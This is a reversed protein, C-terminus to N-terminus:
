PAPKPKIKLAVDTEAQLLAGGSTVRLKVKPVAAEATTAPAKIVIRYEDQDAAVTAPTQQYGDPLGALTVEVPRTFGATRQLKGTVAHDTEAVVTLTEDNFKPSVATKIEVRAPQSYATAVVRESYAHPVAEAVFVFDISKEVVELPVMIPMAVTSQDAAVLGFGPSVAVVPITGQAPQNPVKQRVPETSKLSFRVPQKAVEMGERRAIQVPVTTTVGKFLTKPPETMEASLGAVATTGWALQDSFSTLVGDTDREVARVLPPEVGTATGVIRVLPGNEATAPATRKLRCLVKGSMGEAIDKPAIELGPDGAVALAIPGNYGQRNVTLELIATGDEPASLVATATTLQFDPRTAPAVILRYVAAPDHRNFLDRVVVEVQSTNGPVVVNLAPDNENPQDGSIAFPTPSGPLRVAIEGELSSGISQSQLTLRLNAGPTVTLLYVDREGKTGIRGNLGIPRNPAVTFTADVTPRPEDLGAPEVVEIGDSLQVTPWPGAVATEMPLALTARSANAVAAVAATWEEAATLGSGIGHFKHEGPVAAVPYPVDMLKLDGLKIRFTNANGGRYVLDHLEVFYIGDAPLTQELRADGALRSQGWAIGIPTGKATKLELVPNAKGGLRKLEVDAVIRQGRKGEFYVRLEQGGNLNGFFAAPLATAPKELSTSQLNIHPLRDVAVPEAASLGQPTKVWVPYFGPRVTAPVDIRVTLKDVTPEGVLTAKAGDIASLVQPAPTLNKGAIVIQTAHGATLGAHSLRAIQPLAPPAPKDQQILEDVNPGAVEHFLRKAEDASLARPFLLFEDVVGSFYEGAMESRGITVPLDNVLGAVNIDTIWGEAGNIFGQTSAKPTVAAGNVFLQIRVDDADTDADQGPADAVQFTATLHLLRRAAFAADHPYQVVKYGSGDAIYVQFNDGQRSFNIGYNTLTKGDAQGRKAVLGHYAGDNAETLNVVLLSFTVADPRDVDAADALEISQQKSADLQVARKGSQNWFPSPVRAPDNVLKGDDKSMGATATDAAVNGDDDFTLQVTAEPRLPAPEQSQALLPVTVLALAVVSIFRRAM